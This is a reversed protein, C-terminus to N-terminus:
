GFADAVPDKEIQVCTSERERAAGLKSAVIQGIRAVRRQVMRLVCHSAYVVTCRLVWKRQSGGRSHSVGRPLVHEQRGDLRGFTSYRQLRPAYVVKGESGVDHLGTVLLAHVPRVACGRM